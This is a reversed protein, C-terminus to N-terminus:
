ANYGLSGQIKVIQIAGALYADFTFSYTRTAKTAADVDSAKPFYLVYPNDSDLVNDVKDTSVHRSMETDMISYLKDIGVQTYGTIPQQSMYNQYAVTISDKLYDRNRIVDAWEGGGSKGSQSNTVTFQGLSEAFGANRDVLNKKQTTTLENGDANKAFEGAGKIVKNAVVGKGAGYAALRCVYALEPFMTDAEDNWWGYSRLYGTNALQGLADTSAETYATTISDQEQTTVWYQKELSEVALSMAAVFSPTHDHATVFYWENDVEFIAALLDSPAESATSRATARTVTSVAYLEVGTKTLTLTDTGGVTVGVLGALDGQWSSVIETATESGTVSTFTAILENGDTGVVSVIFTQGASTVADPTITTVDTDRRGIKIQNIIPDQTFAGQAAIYEESNAPFDEGVEKLSAYTRVRDTFYNHAGIFMPVGFSARQIFGTELSISVQVMKEYTAMNREM